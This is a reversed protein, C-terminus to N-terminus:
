EALKALEDVNGVLWIKPGKIVEAIFHHNKQAKKKFEKTPYVVPNFERGLEPVISGLVKTTERLSLEGVMFLDIDSQATEKGQALSGFIFALKVKNVLPALAERLADGLAVTKLFVRKLDEFAPHTREAKYYVMNGRKTKSVLGAREIRKLARQVQRLAGGTAEAIGRQYFENEPHLLFLSLVEVLAPNPFLEALTSLQSRKTTSQSRKTTVGSMPSILWVVRFKYLGKYGVGEEWRGAFYTSSKFPRFEFNGVGQLGQNVPGESYLPEDPSRDPGM